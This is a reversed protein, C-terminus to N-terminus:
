LPKFHALIESSAKKTHVSTDKAYTSTDLLMVLQEFVSSEKLDDFSDAVTHIIRTILDICLSKIHSVEWFHTYNKLKTGKHFTEDPGEEVTKLTLSDRFCKYYMIHENDDVMNDIITQLKAM